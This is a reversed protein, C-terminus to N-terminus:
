LTHGTMTKHVAYGCCNFVYLAFYLASCCIVQFHIRSILFKRPGVIAAAVIVFDLINWGSKWFALFDHYWKLIIEVVFVTLCGHDVAYLIAM